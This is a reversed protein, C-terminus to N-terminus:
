TVLSITPIKQAAENPPIFVINKFCKQPAKFIEYFQVRTETKGLSSRTFSFRNSLFALIFKFSKFHLEGLYLRLLVGTKIIL